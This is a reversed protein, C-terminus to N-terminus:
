KGQQSQIPGKPTTDISRWLYWVAISRFPKCCESIKVIDDDSAPKGDLYFRSVARRFGADNMPLIDMRNLSFIMFM